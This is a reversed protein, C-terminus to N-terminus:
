VPVGRLHHSSSNRPGLGMYFSTNPTTSHTLTLSHNHTSAHLYSATLSHPHTSILTPLYLSSHPIFTRPTGLTLTCQLAQMRVKLWCKKLLSQDSCNQATLKLYMEVARRYEASQEWSHAQSIIDDTNNGFATAMESQFEDLQHLRSFALLKTLETSSRSHACM